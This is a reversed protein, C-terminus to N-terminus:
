FSAVYGSDKLAQRIAQRLRGTGKGHVVRLFPAGALYAADLSRELQELAEEVTRGRVHLELPPPASPTPLRGESVVQEAAPESPLPVLDELEAKIRLRGLMVEAQGDELATVVGESGISRILVRDGVAPEKWDGELDPLKSEPQSGPAELAAELQELEENIDGLSLLPEGVATLRRRLDALQRRAAALEAGAERRAQELINNREEAIEDLRRRLEDRLTRAEMSAQGAEAGAQAAADRQRRIEELMSDARLDDPSLEARAAEVIRKRLGLREAIALANSRGPLGVTLHYTPQLSELDFEVSANQVGETLHAFAKLEPYHTAVLTLCGRGLFEVLLARALAAGEGPDTGAGLEDLLVLSRADAVRLIRVINSIHSSFTSLSQEISQEDGIDVYIGQFVELESGAAAPIHLGCQAMAALLGATKLSVTKGGTNPGTIVIARVEPELTLDMPVVTVPDLLPHRASQLRLRSARGGPLNLVPESANLDDAFRAKAFALDLQALSEVALEITERQAGIAASLEALVRRVEDREQLELERVANNLEVAALPEVFLTAGSASQDHVVAPLRGKYEARLPIVSRGQRQTVIPEQLMTAFKPDAVMRELKRALRVRASRLDRRVTRLKASAGDLVNGHDDLTRSIAEILGTDDALGAAIQALAPYGFGDRRFTRRLTRSSELTAKVDLLDQPELVAGREAARVQPRVDRAGGISLAPRASLLLRAQSTQQQRVLAAELATTPSLELALQKSASFAGYSALRALVKPLELTELDKPNIGPSFQIVPDTAM